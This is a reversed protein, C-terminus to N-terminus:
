YQVKYKDFHVLDHQKNDVVVDFIESFISTMKETEVSLKLGHLDPGRNIEILHLKGTDDLITDCALINFASSNQVFRNLPRLNFKVLDVSKKIINHAQTNISTNLKQDLNLNDLTSIFDKLPLNVNLKSSLDKVIQFNTIHIAKQIDSITLNSIKHSFNTKNEDPCIKIFECLIENMNTNYPLVTFYVQTDKLIYINVDSESNSHTPLKKIDIIFYFRLNFKKENYLKPNTIYMSISFSTYGFDQKIKLINEFFMDIHFNSFMIVIGKGQSGHVPKIIFHQQSNESRVSTIFNIVNDQNDGINYIISKPVFDCNCLIQHFKDKSALFYTIGQIKNLIKSGRGNSSKNWEVIEDYYNYSSFNHVYLDRPGYFLHISNSKPNKIRQYINLRDKTFFGDLMFPYKEVIERAFYIPIKLKKTYTGSKIFKGFANDNYLPVYKPKYLVDVVLKCMENILKKYNIKDFGCGNLAPAGNIEIFKVDLDNTIISDIGYLHYTINKNENDYVNTMYDNSCIAYKGIETTIKEIYKTIKNRIIDHEDKTFLDVYQQHGIVRNKFFNENGSDYNTVFIKLFDTYDFIDSINKFKDHSKYNIFEDYWFGDFTVVDFKKIKRVLYYIRNTIIHGDLLRSKYLKSITWKKFSKFKNLHNTLTENSANNFIGIGQSSSGNNPKLVISCEKFKESINVNHIDVNEFDPCFDESKFKEYYFGKNSIFHDIDLLIRNHIVSKTQIKALNTFSFDIQSINETQTENLKIWNGRELLNQVFLPTYDHIYTDRFNVSKYKKTFTETNEVYSNLDYLQAHFNFESRKICKNNKIM